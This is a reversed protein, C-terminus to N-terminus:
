SYTTEAHVAATLARHDDHQVLPLMSVYKGMNGVVKTEGRMFAMSPDLTGSAIAVAIEYPALVTIEADPHSGLGAAEVRGDVWTVFYTVPGQAGGKVTTEVIATAGPRDPLKAGEVRLRDLWDTSLFSV